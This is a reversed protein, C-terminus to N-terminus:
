LMTHKTKLFSDHWQLLANSVHGIWEDATSVQSSAPHDFHTTDSIYGIVFCHFLIMHCQLSILVKRFNLKTMM